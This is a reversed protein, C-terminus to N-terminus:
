KINLNEGKLFRDWMGEKSADDPLSAQCKLEELLDSDSFNIAKEAALLSNKFTDDFETSSFILRLM